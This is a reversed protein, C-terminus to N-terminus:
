EKAACSVGLGSLAASEGCGRDKHSCTSVRSLPVQILPRDADRMAGRLAALWAAAEGALAAALGAVHVRVFAVDM